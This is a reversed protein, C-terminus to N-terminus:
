RLGAADVPDTTKRFLVLGIDVVVIVKIARAQASQLCNVLENIANDSTKCLAAEEVVCVDDVGRVIPVM